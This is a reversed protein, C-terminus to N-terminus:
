ASSTFERAHKKFTSLIDRVLLSPQVQKSYTLFFSQLPLQEDLAIESLEGDDITKRIMFEPLVSIGYGGKVLKIIAENSESETVVEIDKISMGHRALFNEFEVRCGTGKEGLIMRQDPLQRVSIRRPERTGTWADFLVLPAKFLLSKSLSRSKPALGTVGVDYEGKLLGAFVNECKTISLTLSAQPHTRRFVDVGLQILHEGTICCTGIRVTRQLMPSHAAMGSIIGVQLQIMKEAHEKLTEGAPTLRIRGSPPRIFLLTQFLQELNQIQLSVAPQSLLMEEGARTFSRAEVVKLFVKLSFLNLDM